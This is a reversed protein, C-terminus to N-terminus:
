LRTCRFLAACCAALAPGRRGTWTRAFSPILMIAFFLHLARSLVDLSALFMDIATDDGIPNLAARALLVPDTPAFRSRQTKLQITSLPDVESLLM